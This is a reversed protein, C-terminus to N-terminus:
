VDTYLIAVDFSKGILNAKQEASYIKVDSNGGMKQVHALIGYQHWICTTALFLHEDNSIGTDFQYTYYVHGEYTDDTGIGNQPWSGHIIKIKINTKSIINSNLASYARAVSGNTAFTTNDPCSGANYSTGTTTNTDKYYPIGSIIPCATYGSSSTVTSGNKILGTTGNAGVLSYTTDTFVANSPVSKDITYSIATPVGNATFYVPKNTDGIKSTNTLKAASTAAGGATSAGAYKTDGALATTSTTGITLNSTGAGINARANSQETTTLGQSAVTSVAKFNGVDELGINAKTINVNGTRYTSENDGKVGAVASGSLIDWKNDATKYVNSGAAVVIGAGEKFDSTTTFSDSVNYMDGEDANSINPLNAFTVTGMPRLAGSLGQAIARAQEYYYKSNDTDEGQRTNTGGIAYSESSTAYTSANTASTSAEGAKTTATSASSSANTESTAANTASTSAESAKTSATTASASANSESTAANTASTSASSASSAANTESTSANSASIASQEKYYKANDTSSGQRTTEDGIAYSKALNADYLADSASNSADSAYGQAYGVQTRCDALFNPQLKNETISGTKISFTYTKNIGSGSSTVAIEDSDSFTLTPIMSGVDATYQTGDATTMTIVGNADMSFSVPIKEINLDFTTQTGDVETVTILGTTTNMTWSAVLNNLDTVNAKTSDLSVIRDDLTNIASDMKNLNIDDLATSHSPLNIWNVRTYIKNM